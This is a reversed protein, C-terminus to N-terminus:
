ESHATNGTRRQHRAARYVDVAKRSSRWIGDSGQVADLRGRQAARRLAILTFEEDALATLPVMRAPGAVNPVIFRNLNDYMARAILEGLAGYDGDDARQMAALYASRQRKLIIVPPYGSRVLVLNMVLRGTRGNGDIFPHVREFRNHLRALEEPLWRDIEGRGVRKSTACVDEVWQQMQAPVLPWTPPTMGGPFPHIDHERLSGPGERDTADPHPAVDWVPTMALHHIHRVESMSLLRGDHWDGPEMAQGYVWRAADAYGKVENYERLPKAGVARGQILLMEVERLVLTNGELATSHHAEQHWIDAWISEAGKPNPLGGFRQDLEALAHGLREYVSARSPRGRGAM